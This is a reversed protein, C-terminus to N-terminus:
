MTSRCFDDRTSTHWSVYRTNQGIGASTVKRTRKKSRRGEFPLRHPSCSTIYENRLKKIPQSSLSQIRSLFSLAWAKTWVSLIRTFGVLTTRSQLRQTSSNSPYRLLRHRWNSDLLRIFQQLIYSNCWHPQQTPPLRRIVTRTRIFKYQCERQWNSDRYTYTNNNRTSHEAQTKSNYSRFWFSYSFFFKLRRNERM